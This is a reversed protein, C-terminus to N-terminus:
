SDLGLEIDVKDSIEKILTVDGSECWNAFGISVGIVETLSLPNPLSNSYEVAAKLSSQRIIQNQTDRM